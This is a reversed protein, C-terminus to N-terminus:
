LKQGCSRCFKDEKGCDVGCAPCTRSHRLDSIRNKVEEIKESLEDAEKLLDDVPEDIESDGCHTNYMVRGLRKLVEDFDGNLDFLQVNLRAVDVVAGARRGAERATDAAVDAAASATGRIREMLEKVRDEM